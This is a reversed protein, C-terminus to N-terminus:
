VTIRPDRHFLWYLLFYPRQKEHSMQDIGALCFSLFTASCCFCGALFFYFSWRLWWWTLGTVAGGSGGM